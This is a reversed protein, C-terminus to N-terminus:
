LRVGSILVHDEKRFEAYSHLSLVKNVPTFPPM